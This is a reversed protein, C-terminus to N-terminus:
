QANPSLHKMQLVRPCCEAGAKGRSLVYICIERERSIVNETVDRQQLTLHEGHEGYMNIRMCLSRDGAVM